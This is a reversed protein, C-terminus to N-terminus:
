GGTNARSRWDDVSWGPAEDPSGAFPKAWGNDVIGPVGAEKMDKDRDGDGLLPPPQDLGPNVEGYSLM